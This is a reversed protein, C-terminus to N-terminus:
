GQKRRRAAALGVLGLGLLAITGPEPVATAQLEFNYTTAGATTTFTVNDAFAHYGTGATSGVGISIGSVYADDSYWQEGSSNAGSAWGAIPMWVQQPGDFTVGSGTVFRWFNDNSGTTYWTDKDTNGYAGNYAGEWILESRQNGDWIHLRLAPTYDENQATTSNLAIAWDFVLSLVSNLSGINSAQSYFNGLGVFRTRDGFMEVSADGSRANTGTIAASGGGGNEGAPNAWTPTSPTVLVVSATAAHPAALLTLATATAIGWRSCVSPLFSRIM